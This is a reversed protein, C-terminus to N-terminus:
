TTSIFKEYTDIMEPKLKQERDLKKFAGKIIDTAKEGIPIEAEANDDWSTATTEPDSTIGWKKIEEETFSLSMRLNMLIKLSAYDGEKPLATLLVLRDLVSLNM